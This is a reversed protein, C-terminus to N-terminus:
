GAAAEQTAEIEEEPISQFYPQLQEKIEDDIVLENFLAWHAPSLKEERPRTRM